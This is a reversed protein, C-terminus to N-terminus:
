RSRTARGRGIRQRRQADLRLLHAPREPAETPTAHRHRHRHVPRQEASGLFSISGSGSRPSPRASPRTTTPSAGGGRASPWTFTSAAPPSRPARTSEPPQGPRAGLLQLRRRRLGGVSLRLRRLRRHRHVHPRAPTPPRRPVDRASAWSTNASTGLTFSLTGGSTIAASPVYANNWAAGNWTASQVYPANDAAGNGNITLTNGSPLTVVVQTFLPCGLALDATGPTEPYMGLASWVYWSSMAGLDDNGALGGPANTWIQDQVQRM